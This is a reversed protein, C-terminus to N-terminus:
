GLACDSKSNPPAQGEIERSNVISGDLAAEELFEGALAELRTLDQLVQDEKNNYLNYM